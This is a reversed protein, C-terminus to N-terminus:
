SPRHKKASKRKFVVLGKTLCCRRWLSLRIKSFNMISNVFKRKKRQGVLSEFQDYDTSLIASLKMLFRLYLQRSRETLANKKEPRKTAQVM